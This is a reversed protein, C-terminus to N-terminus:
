SPTSPQLINALHESHAACQSQYTTEQEAPDVAIFKCFPDPEVTSTSPIKPLVAVLATMNDLIAQGVVTEHECALAYWMGGSPHASAFFADVDDSPPGVAMGPVGYNVPFAVTVAAIVYQSRGDLTMVATLCPYANGQFPAGVIFPCDKFRGKKM